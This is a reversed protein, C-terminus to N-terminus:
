QKMDWRFHLGKGVRHSVGSLSHAIIWCQGTVAGGCPDSFRSCGGKLVFVLQSAVCLRELLFIHTGYTKSYSNLLCVQTKGDIRAGLGPTPPDGDVNGLNKSEMGSYRCAHMCAHMYTLSLIPYIPFIFFSLSSLSSVTLLM